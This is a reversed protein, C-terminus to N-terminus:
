LFGVLRVSVHYKAIERVSIGPLSTGYSGSIAFIYGMRGLGPLSQTLELGVFWVTVLPGTMGETYQFCEDSSQM